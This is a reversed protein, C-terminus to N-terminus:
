PSAPTTNMESQVANIYTQGQQCINGGRVCETGANYAALAFDWSPEVGAPSVIEGAACYYVKLIQAWTSVQAHARAAAQRPTGYLILSQRFLNRVMERQQAPLLDYGLACSDGTTVQQCFQHFLDPSYQMVLDAGDDTLQGLGVESGKDDIVTNWLPWFQSEQAIVGKLLRPPVHFTTGAQYIDQDFQNQWDVLDFNNGYYLQLHSALLEYNKSTSLTSADAPLENSKLEPMPCVPPPSESPIPPGNYVLKSDYGSQIKDPPCGAAIENSTPPGEHNVTVYCFLEQFEPQYVVLKYHDLPNLNCNILPLESAPRECAISGTQWDEAKWILLSNQDPPWICGASAMLAQTPPQSVWMTCVLRDRPQSLIAWIFIATLM